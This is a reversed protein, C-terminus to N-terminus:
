LSTCSTCTSAPWSMATANVRLRYKFEPPLLVTAVETNETVGVPVRLTAAIEDLTSFRYASRDVQSFVPSVMLILLGFVAAKIGHKARKM